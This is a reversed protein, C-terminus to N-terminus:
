TLLADFIDWYEDLLVNVSVAGKLKGNPKIVAISGVSDNVPVADEAGRYQATAQLHRMRLQVREPYDADASFTTLLDEAFHALERCDRSDGYRVDSVSRISAELAKVAIEQEAFHLYFEQAYAILTLNIHRKAETNIGAFEPPEVNSRAQIEATIEGLRLTIARRELRKANIERTLRRRGFFGWLSSSGSRQERLGRIENTLMEGTQNVLELERQLGSLVQYLTRRFGAVYQRHEKDYLSKELEDAISRLRTQCKHWIGLLQYYATATGATAPNGLITELQALRQQVRLKVAQEQKLEDQLQYNAARLTDLEKKLEARNWFLKLLQEEDKLDVDAKAFLQTAMTSM